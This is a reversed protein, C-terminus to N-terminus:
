GLADLERALETLSLEGRRVQENIQMIKVDIVM